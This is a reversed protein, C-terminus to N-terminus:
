PMPIRNLERTFRATLAKNLALFKAADYGREITLRSIRHYRHQLAESAAEFAAFRQKWVAHDYVM